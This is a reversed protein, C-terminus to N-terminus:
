LPGGRASTSLRVLPGRIQSYLIRTLTTLSPLDLVKIMVPVLLDVRLSAELFSLKRTPLAQIFLRLNEADDDNDREDDNNDEDDESESFFSICELNTLSSCAPLIFPM